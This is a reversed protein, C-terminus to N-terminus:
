GRPRLSNEDLMDNPSPLNKLEVKAIEWAQQVAWSLSRDLRRAEEQIEMFIDEPFYFTQKRPYNTSM